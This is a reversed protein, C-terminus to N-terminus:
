FHMSIWLTSDPNLYMHTDMNIALGRGEKSSTGLASMRDAFRPTIRRVVTQRCAEAAQLWPSFGHRTTRGGAVRHSFRSRVVPRTM